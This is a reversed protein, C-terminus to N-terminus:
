NKCLIGTMNAMPLFFVVTVMLCWSSTQSSLGIVCLTCDVVFVFVFMVFIM